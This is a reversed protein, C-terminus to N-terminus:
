TFYTTFQKMKGVMDREGNAILMSFYTRMMEHRDQESPREYSGTALYQAIQRFIWPNSSAARGIMVADCGTQAVMRRPVEHHVSDLDRLAGQHPHARGAASRAPM